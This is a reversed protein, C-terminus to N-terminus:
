MDPPGGELVCDRSRFLHSLSRAGGMETCGVPDASKINRYFKWCVSFVYVGASFELCLSGEQGSVARCNQLLHGIYAINETRSSTRGWLQRSSRYVMSGTALFDTRWAAIGGQRARKILVSPTRIAAIGGSSMDRACFALLAVRLFWIRDV